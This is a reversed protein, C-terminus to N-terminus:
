KDDPPAARGRKGVPDNRYKAERKGKLFDRVFVLVIPGLVVQYIILAVGITVLTRIDSDSM